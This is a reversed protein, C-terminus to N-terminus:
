ISTRERSFEAGFVVTHKIDGTFFKYTFDSQNAFVNTLQYRSQPNASYTLLKDNPGEPLTGIYNLSSQQQRTKNSFTLDDTIAAELNVTGIDQKTKQFDRNVFGYYTNRPVGTDTYPALATRNYPVGFDPLQNLDTHIYNATIKLADSPQVKVALLG